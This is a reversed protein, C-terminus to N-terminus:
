LYKSTDHEVPPGSFLGLEFAQDGRRPLPVAAGEHHAALRADALGRQEVPRRAARCREAQAHQAHRADLGLGVEGEARQRLQQPRQLVAEVRQRARLGGRELRHESGVECAPLVAEEGPEGDEGEQGVQRLLTGHQAQDVVGLPEVVGAGLGQQERRSPQGGLAHRHDEGRPLVAEGRWAQGLQAGGPEVAPARGAQQGLELDRRDQALLDDGLRPAVRERQDLEGRGPAALRPPLRM